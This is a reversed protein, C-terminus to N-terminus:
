IKKSQATLRLIDTSFYIIVFLTGDTRLLQLPMLALADRKPETGIARYKRWPTKEVFTSGWATSLNTVNPLLTVLHWKRYNMWDPKMRSLLIM